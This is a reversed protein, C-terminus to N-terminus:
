RVTMKRLKAHFRMWEKLPMLPHGGWNTHPPLNKGVAGRGAVNVFDGIEVHGGTASQGGMVVNRGLTSSGAIGAQSVIISHSGIICNHAIQVLNDIKVGNKIHTLGFVARDITTNAGIEVDDDIRVYGSHDIKIHEGLKTHAYGFGDSGIVCGSHIICRSGIQSDRYISVGPYIVTNDGIEVNDGLTVNSHIITNKGIKVGAGAIVHHGIFSKAGISIDHVSDHYPANLTGHYLAVEVSFDPKAFSQSLIAFALNPDDVIIPIGSCLESDCARVLLAGAKSARLRDRFKDERAYSIDMSSASDLEALAVFEPGDGDFQADKLCLKGDVLELIERLYM